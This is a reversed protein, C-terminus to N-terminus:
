CSKQHFPFTCIQMSIQFIVFSKAFFVEVAIWTTTAIFWGWLQLCRSRCCFRNCKEVWNREKKMVFHLEWTSKNINQSSCESEITERRLKNNISQSLIENLTQFCFCLRERKSRTKQTQDNRLTSKLAKIFRRFSPITAFCSLNPNSKRQIFLNIRKHNFVVISCESM